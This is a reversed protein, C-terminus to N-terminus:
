NLHYMGVNFVSDNRESLSKSQSDVCVECYRIVTYASGNLGNEEVVDPLKLM